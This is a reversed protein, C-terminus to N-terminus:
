GGWRVTKVDIIYLYIYLFPYIEFYIIHHATLILSPIKGHTISRETWQAVEGITSLPPKLSLQCVEM